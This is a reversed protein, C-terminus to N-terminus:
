RDQAHFCILSLSCLDNRLLSGKTSELGLFKKLVGVSSGGSRSRSNECGEAPDALMLLMVLKRWSPLNKDSSGGLRFGGGGLNFEFFLQGRITAWNAGPGHFQDAHDWRDPRASSRRVAVREPGNAVLTVYCYTCWNNAGTAVAGDLPLPASNRRFGHGLYQRHKRSQSSEGAFQSHRGSQDAAVPVMPTGSFASSPPMWRFASIPFCDGFRQDGPDRREDMGNLPAPIEANIQSASVYLLPILPATSWSRFEASRRRFCVM